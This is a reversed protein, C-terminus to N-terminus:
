RFSYRSRPREPPGSTLAPTHLQQIRYLLAILRHHFIDLFAAAADDHHKLRGLIAQHIIDTAPRRRRRSFFTVTMEPPASDGPLLSVIESPAPCLSLSARFRVADAAPATAPRIRCAVLDRAPAAQYFDFAVTRRVVV